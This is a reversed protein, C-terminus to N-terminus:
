KGNNAMQTCHLKIMGNYGDYSHTGMAQGWGARGTHRVPPGAEGADAFIQLAERWRGARGARDSIQHHFWPSQIALM